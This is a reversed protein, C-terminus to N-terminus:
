RGLDSSPSQADALIMDDFCHHLAQACADELDFRREIGFAAGIGTVGMGRAFRVIMCSVSMERRILGCVIMGAVMTVVMGMAMIVVIMVVVLMATMIVVAMGMSM